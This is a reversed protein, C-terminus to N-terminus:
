LKNPTLSVKLTFKSKKIMADFTSEDLLQQRITDRVANDNVPSFQVAMKHSSAAVQGATFSNSSVPRAGRQSSRNLTQTSANPMNTLPVMASATSKTSAISTSRHLSPLRHLGWVPPTQSSDLEQSGASTTTTAISTSQPLPMKAFHASYPSRPATAPASLPGLHSPELTKPDPFEHDASPAPLNLPPPVPRNPRAALRALAVTHHRQSFTSSPTGPPYQDHSPMRALPTLRRSPTLGSTPHISTEAPGRRFPQGPAEEPSLSRTRNLVPPLGGREVRPGTTTASHPVPASALGLVPSGASFPNTSPPSARPTHRPGVLAGVPNGSKASHISHLSSASASFNPTSSENSSRPTRIPRLASPKGLGGSASRVASMVSRLASLPIDDGEKFGAPLPTPMGRGHSERAAAYDESASEQSTCPSVYGSSSSHSSSVTAASSHNTNPAQDLHMGTRSLPADRSTDIYLQSRKDARPEPPTITRPSSPVSKPVDTTTKTPTTGPLSELSLTGSHRTASQYYAAPPKVPALPQSLDLAPKPRTSSQSPARRLTRASPAAVVMNAPLPLRKRLTIVTPDYEATIPLPATLGAHPLCPTEPPTVMPAPQTNSRARGQHAHSAPPPSDPVLSPIPNPAKPPSVNPTDPAIKPTPPASSQVSLATSPVRHLSDSELPETSSHTAFYETSSIGKHTFTKPPKSRHFLAKIKSQASIKPKIYAPGQPLLDLRAPYMADKSPKSGFGWPSHPSRPQNSYAGYDTSSYHGLSQTSTFYPSRSKLPM